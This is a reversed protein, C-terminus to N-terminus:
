TLSQTEISLIVVNESLAYVHEVSARM